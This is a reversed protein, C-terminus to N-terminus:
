IVAAVLQEWAPVRLGDRRDRFYSQQAREPTLHVVQSFGLGSLLAILEAAAFRTKWPEGLRAGRAASASAFERDIGALEDERPVYSFVIESGYTLAAAFRFLAEVSARELYQTVGLVSCFAAAQPDFDHEALAEETWGQELDLPIFTLNTPKQLGRERFKLQTWVLSSVHDTLFIRM